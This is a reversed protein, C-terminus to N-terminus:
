KFEFLNQKFLKLISFFFSLLLFFAAWGLLRAQGKEEERRPRGEGRAAWRRKEGEGRM